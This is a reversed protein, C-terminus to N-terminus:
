NMLTMYWDLKLKAYEEYFAELQEQARKETKSSRNRLTEYTEKILSVINSGLLFQSTKPNVNYAEYIVDIKKKEFESDVSHPESRTLKEYIPLLKASLEVFHRMVYVASNLSKINKAEM